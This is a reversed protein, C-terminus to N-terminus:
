VKATVEPWPKRAVVLFQKGFIRWALRFRLYLRLIWVPYRRNDSMTYPLFRPLVMEPVFGCKKLVETLSVESLPLHHDYFDWYAGPLFKINPGMAILTGGAKLCRWVERLAAELHFKSPLHEFFNSSFVVGLSSDPLPWPKTCDHRLITVERAASASAQPNLDMGYKVAATIQNIFECYGCGLDLVSAEPPIWRRFFSVLQNWVRARYELKGSFRTQYIQQLDWPSHGM